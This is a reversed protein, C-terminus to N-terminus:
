NSKKDKNFKDISVKSRLTKDEMIRKYLNARKEGVTQLSYKDCLDNHLNEQLAKVMEPEKVLREIYKAWLKHDKGEDVLLANGKPNIKGGKEIYNTLDLTYPGVNSAIIATNSFCCEIVKLQSKVLNFDVKELPALLVDVTNYHQYYNNMDKTWCRRYAEDKENPYSSNPIFMKLFKEYRDSCIRYNDTIQCEYRYWVSEEPKLPRETVQGTTENYIKMSGRLDYGCLVFQVKDLIERPLKNTINGILALDHEHTSGMILGIRLRGNSEEKETHFRTDTPDIANPLVFVNKNYKRIEKAFISTTTTIADFLELNEKIPIDFHEKKLSYYQPHHPGLKWHDDIDMVTVIGNDKWYQLATRFAPMMPFLGKHVVIMQYKDFSHLNFFDPRMDFTVSFDEPYQTELFIHPQTSRYFGVGGINDSPIVLINIKAM